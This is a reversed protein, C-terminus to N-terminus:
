FAGPGQRRLSVISCYSVVESSHSNFARESNFVPLHRVIHGRAVDDGTVISGANRCPWRSSSRSSASLMRAYAYGAPGFRLQAAVTLVRRQAHIEKEV